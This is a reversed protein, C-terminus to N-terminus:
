KEMVVFGLYVIYILALAIVEPILFMCAGETEACEWGHYEDTSSAFRCAM